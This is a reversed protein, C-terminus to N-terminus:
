GDTAESVGAGLMLRGLEHRDPATGEVPVVRGRTIVVLRSSLALVEDLDTSILVVATGREAIAEIQRHVFAASAVDLGRTPNEAVLLVDSMGIERAVVLRQQNGGSLAGALAFAGPAAISYERVMTDVSDRIRSWDIRFGNVYVPDRHLALAANEVLDFDPVLGETSRDQPVFGAEDPVDAEGSSPRIRGALLLALERQGNGEVGAVGLIEGPRIDLTVDDLITVGDRRVSVARLTAVPDSPAVISDSAAEVSESAAAAPESMSAGAATEALPEPAGERLGIQAVIDGVLGGGVMAEVLREADLAPAVDSLVTRGDRLVTVHDAIGMVEDLKHGVLVIATGRTALDRLLSFLGDVESPALVATPEDLVLVRPERLLAKLIEVRQRDGVSLDEVRTGLPARLGTREMAAEAATRVDGPRGRGLALNELATLAPVLTFHQHVLSIGHRWADAPTALSVAEGDIEITGSDPSIMGGFVNLLTSKGAGNAGLLAHIEGRRVTLDAGDLAVVSGFRREIGVLRALVANM